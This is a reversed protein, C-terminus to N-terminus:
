GFTELVEPAPGVFTLGAGECGRALEASESLFGWGPHVLQAAARRAAGVVAAVDLYAAPGHGPLEVADDGARVHARGADDRSHAVVSRWGLDAVARAVRVAVEGRNAVLVTPVDSRAM